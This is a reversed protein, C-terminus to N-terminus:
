GVDAAEVVRSGNEDIIRLHLGCERKDMGSWRGSREDKGKPVAKTCPWCGISPYGQDHLPNYPVDNARIYDWVQAGSWNALPNIKVLGFHDDFAAIAAGAREPTQDRRIATLYASFGKIAEQLPLVKRLHCCLNPNTKYLPGDSAAEAAEIAAVPHVLRITLGYKDELRRRLALTQPFQFGTDLNFIDPLIGTEDRLRALMDILACGEAGFATAMTLTPGYAVTAWRLIEQPTAAELWSSEPIIPASTMIIGQLRYALHPLAVRMM